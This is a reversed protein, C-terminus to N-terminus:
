AGLTKRLMRLVSESSSYLHVEEWPIWRVDVTEHTIVPKEESSARFLFRIDYHLHSPVDKRQPILHVDVDFIQNSEVEWDKLGTEEELEKIAVSLVDENGDCHGGPQFWQQLKKHHIMLTKRAEKDIIWASATIHGELLERSFCLSNQQVFAITEQLMKNELVDETSYMELLNLLQNRHM